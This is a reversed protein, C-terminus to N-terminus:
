KRRLAAKREKLVQVIQKYGRKSAITLATEGAENRVDPDAGRSILAHAARVDGKDAAFMLATWGHQDVLNMNAGNDLLARVMELHGGNDIAGTAWMLPTEGRDNQANIDTGREVLPKVLAPAAYMLATDHRNTYARVDANHALLLLVVDRNVDRNGLANLLPTTGDHSRANVNAGKQLLARVVEVSPRQSRTAYHLATEGDSNVAHVDAGRALLLQVVEVSGDHAAGMLATQGHEDQYNVDAGVDIFKQVLAADGSNEAAGILASEVAEHSPKRSLLFNVVEKRDRYAAFWLARNVDAGSEVLTKVLALHGERAVLELATNGNWDRADPKMGARLFLAVVPADNAEARQVFTPPDYSLSMSSIQMRAREPTLMIRPYLWLGLLVVGTAVTVSYVPKAHLIRAFKHRWTPTLIEILQVVDQDFHTDRIEFANRRSLAALGEPLEKANPM